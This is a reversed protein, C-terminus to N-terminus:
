QDAVLSPNSWRWRMWIPHIWMPTKMPLFMVKTLSNQPRTVGKLFRKQEQLTKLHRWSCALFAGLVALLGWIAPTLHYSPDWMQPTLVERLLNQIWVMHARAQNRRVDHAFITDVRTNPSFIHKHTLTLLAHNPFYLHHYSDQLFTNSPFDRKKALINQSM